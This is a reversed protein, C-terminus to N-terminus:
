HSCSLQSVLKNTKAPDNMRSVIDSVTIIGQLVNGPGAVLIRRVSNKEMRALAEEINEDPSCFVVANTMVDAVKTNKPDRGKAVIKLTLDRDTVIGLLKKSQLNDVVPVPGIDKSAMLQAVQDVTTEAVCCEPNRTMIESCKMVKEKKVPCIVHAGVVLQSETSTYPHLIERVGAFFVM